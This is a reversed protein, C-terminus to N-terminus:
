KLLNFFVCEREKHLEINKKKLSENLSKSFRKLTSLDKSSLPCSNTTPSTGSKESSAPISIRSAETISEANSILSTTSSKRSSGGTVEKTQETVSESLEKIDSIKRVKVVETKHHLGRRDDKAETPDDGGATRAELKVYSM